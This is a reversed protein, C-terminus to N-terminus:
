LFGSRTATYLLRQISFFSQLQESIPRTAFLAQISQAKDQVGARNQVELQGAHYGKLQIHMGAAVM